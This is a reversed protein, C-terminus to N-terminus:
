KNSFAFVTMLTAVSGLFLVFPKEQYFALGETPLLLAEDLANKTAYLDDRCIECDEKYAQISDRDFCVDNKREDRAM